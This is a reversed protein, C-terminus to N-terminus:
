SRPCCVCKRIQLIESQEYESLRQVWHLYSTTKSPLQPSRNHSLQQYILDLDELLIRWSLGDVALNHIAVLLYNTRQPGLDILASNFLPGETLNLSERLESEVSQIASKLEEDPIASLDIHSFPISEGPSIIQQRWGSGDNEFRLRLADHYILLHRIAKELIPVKITQKDEFLLIQNWYNPEPPNQEFFWKQLPTLPQPGVITDQKTPEITTTDVVAALESITQHQLIQNTTLRIGAQNARSTIQISQISDGGLELFNDHIGIRDVGIVQEWIEVLIEETSNRPAVYNETMEPRVLNPAPLAQHDVKGSPTLPFSELMTFTAPVMYEPLKTSLFDRLESTSFTDEQDTVLYAALRKDGPVIELAVVVADRISPLQALTAEIEGLEIRYGRLKVQNDRRGIFEIEGNHSYRGIDGTRYMKRGPTFPNGVFKESSLEPQNLYGDALCDGAIYIEGQVGAPLKQLKEDLIYVQTNAIPRGISPLVAWSNPNGELFYSTAVHTETPGYHNFLKVYHHKIFFSKIARTIKLQEGATYIEKLSGIEIGSREAAECLAQLGVFPLFLRAIGKEKLFGILELPDRRLEEPMLVLTGGSSFTSFIEQFSVDFSLPSFQLTRSGSGMQSQKLQWPILNAMSRHPMVVGKPIGTSGSTYLIYVADSPNVEDGLNHDDFDILGNWFNEVFLNVGEREPLSNKLDESTIVVSPSADTLMFELRAKPYSNDLPLCTGGVKLVALISTIMEFSRDLAIGVVEGSQVGVTKLYRALQNASRNLERYNTFSLRDEIAPAEPEVEAQIEFLEVFTKM